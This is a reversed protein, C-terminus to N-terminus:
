KKQAELAEQLTIGEDLKIGLSNDTLQHWQAKGYGNNPSNFCWLTGDPAIDYDYEVSGHRHGLYVCDERQPEPM